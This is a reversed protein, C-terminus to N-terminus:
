GDIFRAQFRDRARRAMVERTSAGTTAALTGAVHRLDDFHLGKAEAAAAMRAFRHAWNNSSLPAGKKGRHLAMCRRGGGLHALHNELVEALAVPVAVTV